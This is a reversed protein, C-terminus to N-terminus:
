QIEMHVSVNKIINNLNLRSENISENIFAFCVTCLSGIEIYVFNVLASVINDNTCTIREAFWRRRRKTSEQKFLFFIKYLFFVTFIRMKIIYMCHLNMGIFTGKFTKYISKILIRAAVFFIFIVIFFLSFLIYTSKQLYSTTFHM